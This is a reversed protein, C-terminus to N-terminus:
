FLCEERGFVCGTALDIALDKWPSANPPAPRGDWGTPRGPIEGRAAERSVLPTLDGPRFEQLPPTYRIAAGAAPNVHGVVFYTLQELRRTAGPVHGRDRLGREAVGNASRSAKEHILARAASTGDQLQHVLNDLNKRPDLTLSTEARAILTEAVRRTGEVANRRERELEAAANDREQKLRAEARDREARAQDGADEVAQGVDHAAKQLAKGLCGLGLFGCNKKHGSPDHYLIPNGELYAYRNFGLTRSGNGPVVPDATLFRGIAPDYYRARAYILGTEEDLEQGTYKFTVSDIGASHDLDMEGYPYYLIRTAERGTGDSVVEASGVHTPHYFWTGVPGGALTHMELGAEAVAGLVGPVERTVTAIKGLGRAHLHRTVKHTSEGSAQRVEFGRGVFWTTVTGGEPRHFVKKVREGAHNYELDVWPQGGKRVEVLHNEADYRYAWQVGDLTKTALNGAADWTATLGTGSVVRPGDYTLSREIRGGLTTLNGPADYAFRRTGYAGTAALLRNAPDYTFAQTESTEVAGVRTSPRGDTIATINGAADYAYTLDQLEAGAADVTVLRSLRDQAYSYDTTVGTVLEKRGPLGAATYRSFLAYILNGEVGDATANSLRLEALHGGATYRQEQVSGDPWTLVAPRGEADYTLREVFPQALGTFAVARETVRGAADYGFSTSGSGDTIRTIRGRGHAVAPDDWTYLVAAMGPAEKRLLRNAADYTFRTERGLADTSAVLNGVDDYSWSLRGLAPDDLGVRRGWGDWTVRLTQGGPLTAGTSRGLLDYRFWTTQGSVETRRVLLGRADYAETTTGNTTTRTVTGPGYTYRTISGDFFTVKGKRGAPDDETTSWVPPEAAYHPRSIRTFRVGGAVGSENDVVTVQGDDGTSETRYVQRLGDFLQKTATTRGDDTTEAIEAQARPDGWSEYRWTVVKGDPGTTRAVRGLPDYVTIATGGDPGTEGLLRGSPDWTRTTVLGQADTSTVAFAHWSADYALTTVRGLADTWTLPNGHADWTRGQEVAVWRGDAASRCDDARPCLFRERRALDLGAWTRREWELVNGWGSTKIEDVRGLRWAAPDHTYTIETATCDTDACETSRVPFGFADWTTTRTLTSVPAGMEFAAEVERSRRVETVGPRPNVAEWSQERRRMLAGNGAFREEKALRGAFPRDQRYTEAEALGSQLDTEKRWEFGLDAQEAAGGPAIRGNGYEYRTVRDTGRGDQVTLRTVLARPSPNALGCPKGYGAETGGGCTSLDPRLAAELGASGARGYEALTAGGLGNRVATLLVPRGTNLAVWLGSVNTAYNHHFVRDPFGDGNVDIEAAVTGYSGWYPHHAAPNAGAPPTWWSVAPAFGAGTNLAVWLGPTGTAYNHHSLRDPRRDGNVDVLLTYHYVEPGSQGGWRLHNQEGPGVESKFWLAKTEFGRGNNLAVWVGPAGTTDYNEHTVRDPLGDGNLDQLTAYLQLGDASRWEPCNRSTTGTSTAWRTAPTFGAGHNLAVWLGPENTQYNQATVRDPRGDGNMDQLRSLTCGAADRWEPWHSNAAAPAWQVPAAFGTGTNLAVWLGPATNELNNAAIRDPLQDGNMDVLAGFTGEAGAYTPHNYDGIATWWRTAPAFGQGTNLGVWIGDPGGTFDPLFSTVRDPRGDGNMDLLQLRTTGYSLQYEPVNVGDNQNRNGTWVTEAAFGQGNNLAVWLGYGSFGPSKGWHDVHDLRGDGNMDLLKRFAVWTGAALGGWHDPKNRGDNQGASDYWLTAPALGANTDQWTFTWAPLATVGDAGIEQVKDLLSLPVPGAPLYDLRYRRVLQAGAKVTVEKLRKDMDVKAGQDFLPVHDPRPEWTFEVTKFTALGNGLTYTIRLPYADGGAADEEYEVEWANGHDDEVRRLAWLRVAGGRGVAQIRSDETTGFFSKGGDKTFLTWSCPETAPAGCGGYAPVYKGWSEDASRFETRNGSVDVLRGAPGAYTDKGDFGPASGYPIRQIVPLGDLNLGRGAQGDGAKSSYVLALSPAAGRTGPPIEIPIRHSLSGDPGVEVAGASTSVLLLAAALAGRLFCPLRHRRM